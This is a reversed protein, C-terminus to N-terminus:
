GNLDQAFHLVGLETSHALLARSSGTPVYKLVATGRFPTDVQEGSLGIAPIPVRERYFSEPHSLVRTPGTRPRMRRGAGVPVLVVDLLWEGSPVGAAAASSWEFLVSWPGGAPLTRGTAVSEGIMIASRFSEVTPQGGPRTGPDPNEPAPDIAGAPRGLQGTMWACLRDCDIGAWVETSDLEVHHVSTREAVTARAKASAQFEVVFSAVPWWDDAPEKVSAEGHDPPRGTGPAPEAAALAAAEGIWADITARSVRPRQAALRREVDAGDLTALEAATSIGLTDSLWRARAVGIGTIRSLEPAESM